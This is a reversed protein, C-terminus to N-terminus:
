EAVISRMHRAHAVSPISPGPLNLPFGVGNNVSDRGTKWLSIAALELMEERGKFRTGSNKESLDIDRVAYEAADEYRENLFNTLAQNRFYTVVEVEVDRKHLVLPVQLTSAVVEKEEALNALTIRHQHSIIHPDSIKCRLLCSACLVPDACVECQVRPVSDGFCIAVNYVDQDSM